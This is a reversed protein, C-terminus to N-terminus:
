LAWQMKRLIFLYYIFIFVYVQMEKFLRHDWSLTVHSPSYFRWTMESRRPIADHRITMGNREWDIVRRIFLLLPNRLSVGSASIDTLPGIKFQNNPQLPYLSLEKITRITKTL